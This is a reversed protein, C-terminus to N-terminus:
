KAPPAKKVASADAGGAKKVTEVKEDKEVVKATEAAVAQEVKIKQAKDADFLKLKGNSRAIQSADAYGFLKKSEGKSVPYMTLDRAM